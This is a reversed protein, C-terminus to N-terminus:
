RARLKACPLILVCCEARDVVAAAVSPEIFRGFWSRRRTGVVIARAHLEHAQASIAGASSFENTLITSAPALRETVRGLRAPSAASTVPLPSLTTLGADPACVGASLCRVNHLAVVRRGLRHGFDLAQELVSGDEELDTAVLVAGRGLMPRIVLVPRLSARAVATATAGLHATSPSLMVMCRELQTALSVTESILNGTRVHLRQVSVAEHLVDRFWEQLEEAATLCREVRRTSHLARGEPMISSFLSRAPPLVRLVHLQAGLEVALTHARALVDPPLPGDDIALLARPYEFKRIVRRRSWHTVEAQKLNPEFAMM